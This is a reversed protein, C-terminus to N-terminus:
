WVCRFNRGPAAAIDHRAEGPLINRVQAPSCRGFSARWFYPSKYSVGRFEVRCGPGGGPGGADPQAPFRVLM